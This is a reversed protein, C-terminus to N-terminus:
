LLSCVLSINFICFMVLLWLLQYAMHLGAWLWTLMILLWFILLLKTESVCNVFRIICKLAVPLSSQLEFNLWASQVQLWMTSLRSQPKLYLSFSLEQCIVITMMVIMM